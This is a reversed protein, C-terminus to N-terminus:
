ADMFFRAVNSLLTVNNAARLHISQAKKPDRTATSRLFATRGDAIGFILLRVVVRYRGDGKLALGRGTNRVIITCQEKGCPRGGRVDHGALKRTKLHLIHTVTGAATLLTDYECGDAGNCGCSCLGQCKIQAVGFPPLNRKHSVQVGLGM